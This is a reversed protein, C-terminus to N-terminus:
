FFPMPSNIRQGMMSLSSRSTPPRRSFLSVAEDLYKRITALIVVSVKAHSITPTLTSRSSEMKTVSGARRVHQNRIEGLDNKGCRMQCRSSPASREQLCFSEWGFVVAEWTYCEKWHGYGAEGLTKRLASGRCAVCSLKSNQLPFLWEVPGTMCLAPPHLRSWPRGHSMAGGHDFAVGGHSALLVFTRAWQPRFREAGPDMVRPDKVVAARVQETYAADSSVHGILVLRIEKSTGCFRLLGPPEECGSTRWM